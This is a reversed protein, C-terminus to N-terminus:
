VFITRTRETQKDREGGGGEGARERKGERGEGGGGEGRERGKREEGLLVSSRRPSTM